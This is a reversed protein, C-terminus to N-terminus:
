RSSAKPLVSGMESGVSLGIWVPRGAFVISVAELDDASYMPRNGDVGFYFARRCPSLLMDGSSAELSYLPNPQLLDCILAGCKLPFGDQSQLVGDPLHPRPRTVHVVTCSNAGGLCACPWRWIM